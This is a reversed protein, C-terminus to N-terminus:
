MRAKSNGDLLRLLMYPVPLLIILRSYSAMTHMSQKAPFSFLFTASFCVQLTFTGSVVLANDEEAALGM